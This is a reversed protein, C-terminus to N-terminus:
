RPVTITRIIEGLGGASMGESEPLIDDPHYTDLLSQANAFHRRSEEQNGARLALNALTFHALVLDRDLYLAKRLAAAAEDHRGQEQLITARLCHLGTSLRDGVLAQDALNLAEDLRGQDAQLRCSQTLASSDPVERVLKLPIMESNERGNGPQQLEPIQQGTGAPERYDPLPATWMELFHLSPVVAYGTNTEETPKAATRKKFLIADSFNVPTFGSFCPHPTECPSVFLWGNELLCSHYGAVVHAVFRPTFYMLVNRCFIVDLAATSNAASPYCDAALNFRAFTVM